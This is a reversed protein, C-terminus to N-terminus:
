SEQTQITCTGAVASICTQVKVPPDDLTTTTLDGSRLDRVAGDTMPLVCGFCIGMRCGSPMLMGADEAADLITTGGDLELETTERGVRLSATGGEGAEVVTPRFREVHLMETRGNAEYLEEFADLMPTPGCIWTERERWDPVVQELQEPTLMGEEDTHRVIARVGAPAEALERAFIVDEARPASHAHVVDLGDFDHNRMMGMVPTIGSGGTLFLVKPPVSQPLMFDGTAQDLQIITGPRAHHVLHQSVHGDPMAKVTISILGDRASTDSTLSYARWNRVGDVDVGIRIYQGPSHGQWDRGPKITITAADATEPTIAVIRGRLDAGSRLPAFLDLYEEPVVPTALGRAFRAVTDRARAIPPSTTM